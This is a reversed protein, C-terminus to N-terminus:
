TGPASAPGDIWVPVNYVCAIDSPDRGADAAAAHIRDRMRVAEQPSAFGYSPIWGDALRGTADLARPGYMGLWVPIPTQPKPELDAEEVRHPSRVFRRPVTRAM